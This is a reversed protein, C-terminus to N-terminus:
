CAGPACGAPGCGSPPRSAAVLAELLKAETIDGSVVSLGGGRVLAAVCPVPAQGAIAFYDESEGSLIFLGPAMGQAQAKGAASEIEGTINPDSGGAAPLYVFVCGNSVAVTNLDALSGLPERWSVASASTGNSDVASDTGGAGQVVITGFSAGDQGASAGDPTMLGRAVLVAAVVLVAVAVISKGRGGRGTKGCACGPGCSQFTEAMNQEEVSEPKKEMTM